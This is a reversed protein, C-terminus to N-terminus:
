LAFYRREYLLDITRVSYTGYTNATVTFSFVLKPIQARLNMASKRWSHRREKKACCSGDGKSRGGVLAPQKSPASGGRLPNWM